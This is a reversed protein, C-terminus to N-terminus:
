NDVDPSQALKRRRGRRPSVAPAHGALRITFTSAEVV